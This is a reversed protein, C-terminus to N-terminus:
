VSRTFFRMACTERLGPPLTTITVCLTFMAAMAFTDSPSAWSSTIRGSPHQLARITSRSTISHGPIVTLRGSLAAVERLRPPEEEHPTGPLAAPAPGEDRGRAGRPARLEGRDGRVAGGGREGIRAAARPRER